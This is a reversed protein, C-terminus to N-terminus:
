AIAANPGFVVGAPNVLYFNAQPVTCRLTGDITSSNGETVRALVNSIGSPPGTFSAVEGQDLNLRSFSYFLNKGSQRGLAPTISFIGGADKTLPGPAAGLSGDVVVSGGFARVACVASTLILVPAHRLRRRGAM